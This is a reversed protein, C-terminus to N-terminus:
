HLKWKGYRGRYGDILGQWIALCNNRNGKLYQCTLIVLRSFLYNFHFLPKLPVSLYEGALYLRNRSMYYHAIGLRRKSAYDGRSHHFGAERTVFSEYGLRRAYLGLETDETYLFLKNVLLQKRKSIIKKAALCSILVASGDVNFSNWGNKDQDFRGPVQIGFLWEPWRRGCAAPNNKTAPGVLEFDHRNSVEVLTAITDPNVTADNNLLFLYDFADLDIKGTLYNM